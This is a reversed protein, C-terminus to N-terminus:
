TSYLKRAQTQAKSGVKRKVNKTKKRKKNKGQMGTHRDEEHGKTQAAAM